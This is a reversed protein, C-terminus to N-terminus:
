REVCPQPLPQLASVTPERESCGSSDHLCGFLVLFSMRIILEGPDHTASALLLDLQAHKRWLMSFCSIM